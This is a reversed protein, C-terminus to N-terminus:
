RSTRDVQCTGAGSVSVRSHPGLVTGLVPRCDASTSPKVDYSLEAPVPISTADGPQEDAPVFKYMGIRVTFSTSEHAVAPIDYVTSDAHGRVTIKFKWSNGQRDRLSTRAMLIGRLDGNSVLYSQDTTNKLTVSVNCQDWKRQLGEVSGIAEFEKQTLTFPYEGLQVAHLKPSISHITLELQGHQLPAACGAASLCILAVVAILLTRAVM